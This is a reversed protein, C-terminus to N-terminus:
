SLSCNREKSRNVNPGYTIYAGVFDCVTVISAVTRSLLSSAHGGSLPLIQVVSGGM